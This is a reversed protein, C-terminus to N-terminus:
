CVKGEGIRSSGGQGECGSGPVWFGMAEWGLLGVHGGRPGGLAVLSQEEEQDLLNFDIAVSYSCCPLGLITLLM